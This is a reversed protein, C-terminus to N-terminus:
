GETASNDMGEAHNDTSFHDDLAAAWEEAPVMIRGDARVLVVSFVRGRLARHVGPVSVLEPVASLPLASMESLQGTVECAPPLGTHGVDIRAQFVLADDLRARVYRADPDIVSWRRNQNRYALTYGERDM